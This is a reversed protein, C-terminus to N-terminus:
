GQLKIIGRNMLTNIQHGTKSFCASIMCTETTTYKRVAPMRYSILNDIREIDDYLIRVKGLRKYPLTNQSLKYLNDLLISGSKSLNQGM